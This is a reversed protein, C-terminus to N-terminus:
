LLDGFFGNSASVSKGVSTSLAGSSSIKLAGESLSQSFSKAENEDIIPFEKQFIEKWIKKAESENKDDLYYKAENLMNKTKEFKNKFKDFESDSKFKNSEFHLEADNFWKRISQEYNTFSYYYFVKITIEEIHYSPIIKDNLRNWYKIAKIINKLKYNYNKHANSLSESLTKPYSLTWSALDYNPIQYGMEGFEFAPLVDFSKNSLEVTVCPRDQKVKGQYDNQKDLFNKIKSLVSQPNPLNGYEDCWKEEDLVAFIDIDDLPRIITDREYSGNLFTEKLNLTEDDELASTINNVSSTINEEQKDTVTINDIFSQISQLLTPM